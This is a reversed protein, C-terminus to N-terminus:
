RKQLPVFHAQQSKAGRQFLDGVAKRRRALMSPGPLDQGKEIPGKRPMDEKMLLTEKREDAAQFVLLFANLKDKALQFELVGGITAQNYFDHRSEHAVSADFRLHQAIQQPRKELIVAAM